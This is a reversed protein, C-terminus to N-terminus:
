DDAWLARGAERSAAFKATQELRAGATRAAGSRRVGKAGEMKALKREVNRM